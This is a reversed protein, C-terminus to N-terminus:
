RVQEFYRQVMEADQGGESTQMWSAVINGYTDRLMENDSLHEQQSSIDDADDSIFLVRVPVEAYVGYLAGGSIDAVVKIPSAPKWGESLVESPVVMSIVNGDLFYVAHSDACYPVALVNTGHHEHLPQLTSPQNIWCRRPIVSM